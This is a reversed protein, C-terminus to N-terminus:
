GWRARIRKRNNEHQTRGVKCAKHLEKLVVILTAAQIPESCESLSMVHIESHTLQTELRDGKGREM